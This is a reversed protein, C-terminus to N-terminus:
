HGNNIISHPLTGRAKSAMESEGNKEEHTGNARGSSVEDTYTEMVFDESLDVAGTFDLTTAATHEVSRETTDNPSPTMTRFVYTLSLNSFINPTLPRM